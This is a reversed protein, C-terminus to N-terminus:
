NDTISVKNMIVDSLPKDNTDTDVLGIAQVVDMGEVEVVRGFVTHVGDLWPTAALTIFFQSGGTNPGSNAMSLIGPGDHKLLLNGSDDKPFEDIIKYGPGGTGNGNPDGGQIMFNEIVRHFILEDYYGTQALHIFNRTTLPVLDEFLELKVTGYNTEIVAFRNPPLSDPVFDGDTDIATREDLPFPDDADMVGDGDDDPDVDNNKGDNDTDLSRSVGDDTKDTDDTIGDYDDDLDANNGIGDGDTDLSEAPDLPFADDADLVGDNDDDTDANNGIGDGDTDLSETPDLPFADDADLVGDNDDDPDM